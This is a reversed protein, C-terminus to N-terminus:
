SIDGTARWQWTDEKQTVHGLGPFPFHFAFVLARETAAKKLLRRRTSVVQEPAFDVAAHWEPQEVHIPHLVADSICLLQRDGSSIALAMHGPTHGPAAIASIGSVIETELSVLELQDRIPPLNKRASQLLVERVHEDLKAEAEGSTWFDWEDKWMVYRADPFSPRGESDTNGGIHDPHGHTIIVTDIDEPAIRAAQLNRLLKGTSPALDGAGTDVLVQHEGTNVVLCIYPSVWEAWQEFHLDHNRLVPELRERTANSFLLVSPPPFTPPSYIHTGDSVATCQFGGLKFRHVDTNM